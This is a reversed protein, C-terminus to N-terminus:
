AVRARRYAERADQGRAAPRETDHFGRPTTIKEGDPANKGLSRDWDSGRTHTLVGAPVREGGRPTPVSAGARRM